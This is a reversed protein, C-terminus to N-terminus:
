VLYKVHKFSRRVINFMQFRPFTILTTDDIQYLYDYTEGFLFRIVVKYHYCDLDNIFKYLEKKKNSNFILYLDNLKNLNNQVFNVIEFNNVPLKKFKGM